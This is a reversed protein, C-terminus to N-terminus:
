ARAKRAALVIGSARAPDPTMRWCHDSRDVLHLDFGPYSRFPSEQDVDSASCRTLSLGPFRRRFEAVLESAASDGGLLSEIEHLDTESIAM